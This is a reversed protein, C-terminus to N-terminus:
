RPGVKSIADGLATVEKKKSAVDKRLRSEEARKEELQLEVNSLVDDDDNKSRLEALTAALQQERVRLNEKLTIEIERVPSQTCLFWSFLAPCTLLRRADARLWPLLM